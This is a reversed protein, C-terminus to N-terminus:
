LSRGWQWVTSSVGHPWLFLTRNAEWLGRRFVRIHVLPSFRLMGSSFWSVSLPQLLWTILRASIMERDKRLLLICHLKLMDLFFCGYLDFILDRTPRGGRTATETIVAAFTSTVHLVILFLFSAATWTWHLVLLWFHLKILLLRTQGWVVM